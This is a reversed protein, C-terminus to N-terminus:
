GRHSKNYKLKRPLILPVLFLIEDIHLPTVQVNKEGEPHVKGIKIGEFCVIFFAEAAGRLSQKNILRPVLLRGLWM